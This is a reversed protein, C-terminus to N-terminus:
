KTTTNSLLLCIHLLVGWYYKKSTANYVGSFGAANALKLLETHMFVTLRLNDVPSLSSHTAMWCIELTEGQVPPM